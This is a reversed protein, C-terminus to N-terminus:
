HHSHRDYFIYSQVQFQIPIAGKTSIAKINPIGTMFLLIMTYNSKPPPNLFTM